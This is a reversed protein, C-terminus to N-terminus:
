HWRALQKDTLTFQPYKHVNRITFFMANGEKRGEKRGEKMGEKRGENWGDIWGDMWAGMCGDM